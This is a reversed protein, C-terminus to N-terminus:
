MKFTADKIMFKAVKGDFHHTHGNIEISCGEKCEKLEATAKSKIEMDVQKGGKPTIKLTYAKNDENVVSMATAATVFSGLVIASAVFVRINM